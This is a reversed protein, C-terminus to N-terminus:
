QEEDALPFDHGPAFYQISGDGKGPSPLMMCEVKRWTAYLWTNYNLRVPQQGAILDDSTRLALQVTEIKTKSEYRRGVHSRLWVSDDLREVHTEKDLLRNATDVYGIEVAAVFRAATWGQM